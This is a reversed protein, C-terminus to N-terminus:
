LAAAIVESSDPEDSAPALLAALESPKIPATQNQNRFWQVGNWRFGAARLAARTAADPKTPFTLKETFSTRLFTPAPKTKTQM